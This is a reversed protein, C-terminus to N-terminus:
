VPVPNLVLLYVQCQVFLVFPILVTVNYRADNIINNDAGADLDAIGICLIMLETVMSQQHCLQDGTSQRAFVPHIDCTSGGIAAFIGGRNLCEIRSKWRLFLLPHRALLFEIDITM